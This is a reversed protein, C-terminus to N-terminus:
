ALPYPLVFVPSAFPKACLVIQCFEDVKFEKLIHILGYGPFFIVDPDRLAFILNISLM